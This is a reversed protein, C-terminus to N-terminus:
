FALFTESSYPRMKQPAGCPKAPTGDRYFYDGHEAHPSNKGRSSRVGEIGQARVPHPPHIATAGRANKPKTFAPDTIPCVGAIVPTM